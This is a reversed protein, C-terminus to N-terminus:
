SEYDEAAMQQGIAYLDVSGYHILLCIILWILTSIVATILFKQKMRPNHPASGANGAQIDESARNGWPLVAFLVTWFVMIYVVIASFVTM